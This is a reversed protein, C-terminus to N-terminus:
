PEEAREVNPGEALTHEVAAVIRQAHELDTAVVRATFHAQGYESRNRSRRMRDLQVASPEHGLIEAAYAAVAAHGGPANRARYGNALMHASVAKRAADCLLQYAGNLDGGVIAAASALHQKSEDVISRARAPDPQIPELVGAALGSPDRDRV